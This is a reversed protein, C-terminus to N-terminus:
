NKVWGSSVHEECLCDDESVNDVCWFGHGGEFVNGKCIARMQKALKKKNNDYYNDCSSSGNNASWFGRYRFSSSKKM